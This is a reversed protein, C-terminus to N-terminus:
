MRGANRRFAEGGAAVLKLEDNTLLGAARQEAVSLAARYLRAHDVLWDSFDAYQRREYDNHVWQGFAQHAEERMHFFMLDAADGDLARYAAERWDDDSYLPQFDIAPRPDNEGSLLAHAYSAASQTAAEIKTHATM